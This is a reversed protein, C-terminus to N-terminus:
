QSLVLLFDCDVKEIKNWKGVVLMEILDEKISCVEAPMAIDTLSTILHSGQSVYSHQCFGRTCVYICWCWKQQYLKNWEALASFICTIGDFVCNKQYVQSWVLLVKDTYFALVAISTFREYHVGPGLCDWDKWDRRRCFDQWTNHQFTNIAEM